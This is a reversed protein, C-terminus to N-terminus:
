VGHFTFAAWYRPAAFPRGQPDGVTHEIFKKHALAYPTRARDPASDRRAQFLEGLERNTVDRLWRQAARLAAAPPQREQRYFHYFREM